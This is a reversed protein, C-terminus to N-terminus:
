VTKLEAIVADKASGLTKLVEPVETLLNQDYRVASVASEIEQLRKVLALIRGVKDREGTQLVESLM